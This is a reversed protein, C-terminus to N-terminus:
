DSGPHSLYYTITKTKKDGDDDDNFAFVLAENQHVFTRLVFSFCVIWYVDRALSDYVFTWILVVINKQKEPQSSLIMSFNQVYLVNLSITLRM